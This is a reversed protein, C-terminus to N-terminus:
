NLRVAQGKNWPMRSLVLAIACQGFFTVMFTGIALLVYVAARVTPVLGFLTVAFYVVRIQTPFASVSHEQAIFYLVQAGSITMVAYYGPSWGAIAAVIFALTAAWFWWRIDTPHAVLEM